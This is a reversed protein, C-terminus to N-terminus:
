ISVSLGDAAKSGNNNNNTNLNSPTLKSDLNEDGFDILPKEEQKPIVVEPKKDSSLKASREFREYRLFCNNLDDNIRLM